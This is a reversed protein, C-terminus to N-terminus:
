GVLGELYDAYSEYVTKANLECEFTALARERMGQRGEHDEILKEIARVLGDVDQNKYTVGVGKNKLFTSAEGEISSIIPLGESLYEGVKNPLSLQFGLDSRYPLVGADSMQMLVRIQKKTVWGPFSISKVDRSENILTELIEGVGCVVFRVKHIKEREIKRAAEVLLPIEANKTMTGFMCITFTNSDEEIGIQSWFEIAAERQWPSLEGVSYCLFFAKKLAIGTESYEQEFWETFSDTIGVISTANKAIYRAQFVFPWILMRVFPRIWRPMVEVFIDPWLDRLDVVSPIEFKKAIEVGAKALEIAPYAALILDPREVLNEESLARFTKATLLNHVIRSFSINRKYTPSDILVVDYGPLYNTVIQAPSRITKNRHNTTSSWVSVKHGRAHLVEALSCMRHLRSDDFDIPLPEGEILLWFHL